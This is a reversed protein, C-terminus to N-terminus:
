IRQPTPHQDLAALVRRVLEGPRRPSRGTHLDDLELPVLISRRLGDLEEDDEARSLIEDALFAVAQWWVATRRPLGPSFGAQTSLERLQDARAHALFNIWVWNPINRERTELYEAYGGSLYVDCERALHREKRRNREDNRWPLCRM